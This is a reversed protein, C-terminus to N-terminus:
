VARSSRTMFRMHSTMSEFIAWKVIFVFRLISNRTSQKESKWRNRTEFTKDAASSSWNINKYPSSWSEILIFHSIYFPLLTLNKGRLSYIWCWSYSRSWLQIGRSASYKTWNFNTQTRCFAFHSIVFSFFWIFRFQTLTSWIFWDFVCLQRKIKKAKRTNSIMFKSKLLGCSKFPVTKRLVFFFDYFIIMEM